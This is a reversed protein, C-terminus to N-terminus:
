PVLALPGVFSRDVWVANLGDRPMASMQGSSTNCAGAGGYAAYTLSSVLMDVPRSVEADGVAFVERPHHAPVYGDGSCDSSAYYVWVRDVPGVEGTEADVTWYNGSPDFWILATGETVTAGASDVWHPGDQGREGTAGDVGDIGDRGAAGAVGDIGNTGDRGPTGAPGPNPTCALVLLLLM